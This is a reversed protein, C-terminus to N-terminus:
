ISSCSVKTCNGDVCDVTVNNDTNCYNFYTATDGNFSVKCTNYGSSSGTDCILKATVTQGVPAHIDLSTYGYAAVAAQGISGGKMFYLSAVTDYNMYSLNNIITKVYFIGEFNAPGAGGEPISLHSITLTPNSNVSSTKACPKLTAAESFIFTGPNYYISSITVNNTLYYKKGSVLSTSSNLEIGGADAIATSCSIAQPTDSCYHKGSTNDSTNCVNSCTQWEPDYETAGACPDVKTILVTEVANVLDQMTDVLSPDADNADNCANVDMNLGLNGLASCLDSQHYYNDIVCRINASLSREIPDSCYGSAWNYLIDFIPSSITVPTNCAVKSTDFPCKIINDAGSCQALTKTYGLTACDQKVCAVDARAGLAWFSFASVFLLMKRNFM